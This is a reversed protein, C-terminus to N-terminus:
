IICGFLCFVARPKALNVQTTAHPSHIARDLAALTELVQIRKPNGTIMLYIVQVYKFCFVWWCGHHAWYTICGILSTSSHEWHRFLLCVTMPWGLVNLSIIICPYAAFFFKNKLHAYEFSCSVSYLIDFQIGSCEQTDPCHCRESWGTSWFTQVSSVTCPQQFWLNFVLFNVPKRQNLLTSLIYLLIKFTGKGKQM